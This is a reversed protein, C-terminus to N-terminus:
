PARSAFPGFLHIEHISWYYVPDSGVQELRVYRCSVPQFFYTLRNGLKNFIRNGAWYLDSLWQTEIARWKKGDPSVLLRLDRPYDKSSSGQLLTMGRIIEMRGLDLEFSLNPSQPKLSTWRTRPNGDLALSVERQNANAAARWRSRDLPVPPVKEFHYFVRYPGFGKQHFTVGYWELMEEVGALETQDMVLATTPTLELSDILDPSPVVEGNDGSFHNSVETRITRESMVTIVASLWHDAYARNVGQEKLFAPLSEIANDRDPNRKKAGATQYVLLENISWYDGPRDKTLTIKLFRSPVPDFYAEVRGRRIKIMPGPGSWFFPGVYDEVRSVVQWKQGTESVEIQYGAPVYRYSGPWWSVKNITETRGLDLLFFIGAEQASYWGSIVDGDFAERTLHHERSATASWGSRSLPIFPGEPPAFDTYLEFGPAPITKRYSGGLAKLNNEWTPDPGAFLYAPRATSDVWQAYRLYGAQYPDVAILKERSLFTLRDPYHASYLWQIGKEKIARILAADTVKRQAAAQRLEPVLFPWAPEQLAGWFNVGLLIGILALGLRHSKSKIKSIFMALFFPVCTYYPLFYKPDNDSLRVNYVTLMNVATTALMTLLLLETGDTKQLRLRLLGVLGFRRAILVSTMALVLFALFLVGPIIKGPESTVPFPIGGLIPLTNGFFDTAILRWDPWVILQHIPLGPTQQRVQYLLQPLSGMLFAAIMLFFPGRLPLKKDYLWLFFFAPALYCIILHNTWWGLGALLGALALYRYRGTPGSGPYYIIRCVLVLLFTGFILTLPYHSRAENTWYLYFSPPLALYLLALRIVTEPFLRRGLQWVLYLFQFSLIVPLLELVWARTGFCLVLVASLYAELSGMFNQGYFFIPFEGALVRLSMIGIVSEDGGLEATLLPIGRAALAILFIGAYALMKKNLPRPGPEVNSKM